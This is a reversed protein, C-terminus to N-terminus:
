FSISCASAALKEVKLLKNLRRVGDDGGHGLCIMSVQLLVQSLCLSFSLASVADKRRKKTDISSVLHPLRIYLFEYSIGNSKTQFSSTCLPGSVSRIFDSLYLEKRMQNVCDFSRYQHCSAM